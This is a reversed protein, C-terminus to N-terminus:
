TVLAEQFWRKELPNGSGEQLSPFLFIDSTGYLDRLKEKNPNLHFQADFPINKPRSLGFIENLSPYNNKITRLVWVM